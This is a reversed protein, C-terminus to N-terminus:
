QRGSGDTTCKGGEAAEQMLESHNASSANESYRQSLQSGSPSAVEEWSWVDPSLSHPNSGPGTSRSEGEGVEQEGPLRQPPYKENAFYM